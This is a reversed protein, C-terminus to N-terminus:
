SRREAGWRRLARQPCRRHPECLIRTSSRTTDATLAAPDPTLASSASPAPDTAPQHSSRATDGSITIEAAPAATSTAPNHAPAARGTTRTPTCPLHRLHRPVNQDLVASLLRTFILNLMSWAEQRRM